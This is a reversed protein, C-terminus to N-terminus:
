TIGISASAHCLPCTDGMIMTHLCTHRMCAAPELAVFGLPLPGRARYSGFHHFPLHDTHSRHARGTCHHLPATTCHHTDVYAVTDEESLDLPVFGRVFADKNGAEIFGVLADLKAQLGACTTKILELGQPADQTDLGGTAADPKHDDQITPM